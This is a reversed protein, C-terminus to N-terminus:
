AAVHGFRREDIRSVAVRVAELVMSALGRALIYRLMTLLHRSRVQLLCENCFCSPSASESSDPFPFGNPGDTPQQPLLIIHM